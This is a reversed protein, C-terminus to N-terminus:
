APRERMRRFLGQPRVALAAILMVPVIAPRYAGPVAAAAAQEAIGVLLGAALSRRLGFGGLVAATVAALTLATSDAVRAQAPLALLIAAVGTLMGNLLFAYLVMRGVRIGLAEAALRNHMTAQLARGTRTDGLFTLVFLLAILAVAATAVDAVPVAVIGALDLSAPWSLAIRPRMAAGFVRDVAEGLAIGVAATAIALAAPGRRAVPDVVALKFAAGFVLVAASLAVLVAAWSPLGLNMAMLALFGPAFAFAGQALNLTRAARWLLAMGVGVLAYIAGSAVGAVALGVASRM